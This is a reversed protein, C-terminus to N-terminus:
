GDALASVDDGQCVALIGDEGKVGDLHGTGLFTDGSPTVGRFRLMPKHEM